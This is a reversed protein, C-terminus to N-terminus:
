GSPSSRRQDDVATQHYQYEMAPAGFAYRFAPTGDPSALRASTSAIFGPTASLVSRLGPHLHKKFGVLARDSVAALSRSRGCGGAPPLESSVLLRPQLPLGLLIKILGLEYEYVEDEGTALFHLLAAARPRALASLSTAGGTIVGTQELFRPFFPHLLILGAQPVLVPLLEPELPPAESAHRFPTSTEFDSPPNDRRNGAHGPM